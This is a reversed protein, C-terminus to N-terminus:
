YRRAPQYSAFPPEQSHHLGAPAPDHLRRYRKQRSSRICFFIGILLLLGLVASGAIIYPLYPKIKESLSENDDPDQDVVPLVSAPLLHFNDTDDVGDLRNVVFDTHAEALDTRSLLQIYPDNTKGDKGDVFDGFNILLYVNRLFTMGLIIDYTDSEASDQIPQFGGLCIQNGLPDTRGLDDSSTDLPHVPISVNGFKFTVNLEANCPVTYIEGVGTINELKADPVRLYFADAVAQPVQSMTFGTDFIANLRNKSGGKVRSTVNVPQGDPGLIGKADILTQWHQGGNAKVDFVELKPQSTINEYGDIIEGITLDGPYKDDPDDSRGLIISIFNPTSSNLKFIHDVVPNGAASNLVQRIKSNSSPGLGIIGQDEGQVGSTDLVFAQDPITYGEYGVEVLKIPGKASGIAYSLETTKGTDKTNPIDGAVTLDSSGTDLLLSVSKGGMTVNTWYKVDGSNKLDGSM